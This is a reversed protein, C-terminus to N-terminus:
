NPIRKYIYYPIPQKPDQCYDLYTHLICFIRFNETFLKTTEFFLLVKAGAKAWLCPCLAIFFSNKSLNVYVSTTCSALM